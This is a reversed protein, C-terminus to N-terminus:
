SCRNSRLDIAADQEKELWLHEKWGLANLRSALAIHGLLPYLTERHLTGYPQQRCPNTHKSVRLSASFRQRHREIRM